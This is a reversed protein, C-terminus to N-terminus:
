HRGKTPAIPALVQLQLLQLFDVIYYTTASIELVRPTDDSLDINNTVWQVDGNGTPHVTCM